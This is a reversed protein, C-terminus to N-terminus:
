NCYKRIKIQMHFNVLKKWETYICHPFFISQLIIITKINKKIVKYRSEIIIINWPYLLLFQWGILVICIELTLILYKSVWIVIVISAKLYWRSLPEELLSVTSIYQYGGITIEQHVNGSYSESYELQYDADFVNLVTPIYQSVMVFKFLAPKWYGYKTYSWKCLQDRTLENCCM